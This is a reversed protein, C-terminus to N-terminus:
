RASEKVEAWRRMAAEPDGRAIREFDLWTFQDPLCNLARDRAPANDESARGLAEQTSLQFDERYCRVLEAFVAAAERALEGAEDAPRDFTTTEPPPPSPLLAAVREVQSRLKARSM